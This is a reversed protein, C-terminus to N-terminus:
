ALVECEVAERYTRWGLVELLSPEYPERHSSTETEGTIRNHCPGDIWWSQGGKLDEPLAGIIEVDWYPDLWEDNWHLISDENTKTVRVLLPEDLYQDIQDDGRYGTIWTVKFYRGVAAAHEALALAELAAPEVNVLLPNIPAM